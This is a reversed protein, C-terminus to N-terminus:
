GRCLPRAAHLADPQLGRRARGPMDIATNLAEASEPDLWNAFHLLKATDRPVGLAPPLNAVLLEAEGTEAVTLLTQPEAALVTDLTSESLRYREAEIEAEAEAKRARETARLCAIATWVAFAIVGLIIGLTLLTRPDLATM